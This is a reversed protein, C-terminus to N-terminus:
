EYEKIEGNQVWFFEGEYDLTQLQLLIKLEDDYNVSGLDVIKQAKESKDLCFIDSVAIRHIDAFIRLLKTDEAPRGSVIVCTFSKATKNLLDVMEDSVGWVNPNGGGGKQLDTGHPFFYEGVHLVGDFDFTVIPKKEDNEFLDLPLIKRM